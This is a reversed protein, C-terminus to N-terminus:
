TSYTIHIGCLRRRRYYQSVLFPCCFNQSGFTQPEKPLALCQNQTKTMAKPHMNKEIIRHGFVRHGNEAGGIAIIIMGLFTALLRLFISFNQHLAKDM